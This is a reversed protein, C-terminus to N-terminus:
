REIHRYCRGGKRLILDKWIDVFARFLLVEGPQSGISGSFIKVFLMYILIQTGCLMEALHKKEKFLVLM